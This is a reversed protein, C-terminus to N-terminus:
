RQQQLAKKLEEKTMQSRGPIDEEQARHYLEDRSLEDIDANGNGSASPVPRERVDIEAAEAVRIRRSVKTYWRAGALGGVVSGLLMGGLAAFAVVSDVQRWGDRTTPIGLSHLADTIPKVDNSSFLSRALVAIVGLIALSAAFVGLGHLIGQRWAMRGTVYGALLYAVLLLGGILLGGRTGLKDWGKTPDLDSGRRHLVAVAGGLLLAFTAYGVLVGGLISVPSVPGVGALRTLHSRTKPREVATAAM